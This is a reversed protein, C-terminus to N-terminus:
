LHIDFILDFNITRDGFPRYTFDCTQLGDPLLCEHARRQARIGSGLADYSIKM